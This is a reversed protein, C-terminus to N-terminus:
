ICFDKSKYSFELDTVKVELDYELTPIMSLLVRSRYRDGHLICIFNRLPDQHYLQIFKFVFTKVKKHFNLITLKVGLNDGPTSDTSIFVKARYRGDPWIHIFDM